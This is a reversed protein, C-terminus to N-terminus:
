LEANARAIKEQTKEKEEEAKESFAALINAKVRLEDVKAPALTKKGLITTLRKSEKEIYGETGAVLKEMARIYHKATAGAKAAVTSAEKLIEARADKSATFFKQALVDLEALRGAKTDLGGGVARSSGTKENLYKVLDIDSRGGTYEQPIKDAGKAFFKLTPYGSVGYKQAIEKNKEDDANFNAVVVDGEPEYWNAVKEWIPKLSKCHGCWPATFSIFVNKSPDMVIEDFNHVDVIKVASPPKAPLKSKVGTKKTVYAVLTELDRGEEYKSEVGAKDFFKLTPFGTVGYKQGLERGAGDADVKAIIVKDKAHEFANALEEWVPALNKCHGCWPAFFEVFAPVKGIVTEFNDPLLEQVNSASVGAVLAGVLLSVSFRM